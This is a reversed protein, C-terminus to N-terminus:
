LTNRNSLLQFTPTITGGVMASQGLRPSMFTTQIMLLPGVRARTGDVFVTEGNALKASANRHHVVM